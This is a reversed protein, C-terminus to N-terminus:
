VVVVKGVNEEIYRKAEHLSDFVEVIKSNGDLGIEKRLDGYEDWIVYAGRDEIVYVLKTGKWLFAHWKMIDVGM